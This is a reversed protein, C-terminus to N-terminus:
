IISVVFPVFLFVFPVFSSAKTGKTNRKTIKATSNGMGFLARPAVILLAALSEIVGFCALKIAAGPRRVLWRSAAKLKAFPLAIVSLAAVRLGPHNVPYREWALYGYRYGMILVYEWHRLKKLVTRLTLKRQPHIVIAEPQWIIPGIRRVRAALETDEYAPYPFAEDFGGVQLLIDRRYACNCTLYVGGTKNTPGEGLPDFEGENDAYVKGEIALADPNDNFGEALKRLWSRHPLSDSDTMAVIRGRAHRICLNRAAAPGRQKQRFYKIDVGSLRAEEIVPNLDENSGDDGIIVEFGDRSFDQAAIAFLCRRLDERRNHVPIIVSFEIPNM